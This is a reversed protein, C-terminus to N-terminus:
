SVVVQRPAENGRKGGAVDTKEFAENPCPMWAKNRLTEKLGLETFEGEGSVTSRVFQSRGGHRCACIHKM